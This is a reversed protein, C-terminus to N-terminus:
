QKANPDSLEFLRRAFCVLAERQSMPVIKKADPAPLGVWKCPPPGMLDRAETALAINDALKISKHAFLSPSFGFKNAIAVDHKYASRVLSACVIDNLQKAPRCIDGFGWYAEHADHLLAPLKLAPSDVLSEVFLSHQAVSYFEICHGGFRCIRSLVVAIETQEITDESPDVISHKKGNLTQIWTM